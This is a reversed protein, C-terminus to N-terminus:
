YEYEKAAKRTMFFHIGNSCTEWPDPDFKDPYVMEGVVYHLTAPYLEANKFLRISDAYNYKKKGDLSTIELVKAKSCRCKNTTGCIREADEPISLKVLVSRIMGKERTFCKKWGIFSGKNPCIWKPTLNVASRANYSPYIMFEKLKANKFDSKDLTTYDFNALSLDANKFICNIFASGTANAHKFVTKSFDCNLLQSYEIIVGSLNANKFTTNRFLCNVFTTDSLDKDSLDLGDFCEHFMITRGCINFYDMKRDFEEQTM